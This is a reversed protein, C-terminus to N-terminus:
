TFLNRNLSKNHTFGNFGVYNNNIINIIIINSLLVITTKLSTKRMKWIIAGQLYYNLYSNLILSVM